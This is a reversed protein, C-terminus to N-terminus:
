SLRIRYFLALVGMAFCMFLSVIPLLPVYPPKFTFNVEHKGRNLEVGMFTENIVMWSAQKGDVHVKWHPYPNQLVVLTTSGDASVKMRWANPQNSLFQATSSIQDNVTSTDVRGNEVDALFVMPFSLLEQYRGSAKAKQQFDYHYPGSGDPSPLKYIIPLNAWLFVSDNHLSATSVSEFPQDLPWNPYGKPIAELGNEIPQISRESWITGRANLRAHLGIDVLMLLMFAQWRLRGKAWILIGCGVILQSLQMALDTFLLDNFADNQEHDAAKAYLLVFSGILVLTIILLPLLGEQKLRFEKRFAHQFAIASGVLFFFLAFFRFLSAFRFVDMFPLEALWLRFPFVEALAICIFVVGIIFLKRVLRIRLVGYVLAILPWLGIYCNILAFDKGWVEVNNLQTAYPYFFTMLGEPSLSGTLLGWEMQNIVLGDSRFYKSLEFAPVLVVLSTIVAFLILLGAQPLEKLWQDSNWKFIIHVLAAVLFSYLAVISIGPYGGSLMFYICIVLPAGQKLSPHKLWNCLFHGSWIFWTAGILWGLHQANGIFFGNMMLLAAFVFRVSQKLHFQKLLEFMGWGALALHMLYELSLSYVSYRGFFAFLWAPFYWTAPDSMQAFGANMFPNWLPWYGNRICELVFRRWPLHLGLADWKLMATGDVLPTFTLVLVMTLGLVSVIRKM